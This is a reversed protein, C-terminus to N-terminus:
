GGGARHCRRGTSFRWSADFSAQISTPIEPPVQDPRSPASNNRHVANLSASFVNGGTGVQGVHHGTLLRVLRSPLGFSSPGSATRASTRFRTWPGDYMVNSSTTASKGIFCMLVRGGFTVYM